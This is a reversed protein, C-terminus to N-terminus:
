VQVEHVRVLDAYEGGLHQRVAIPEPDIVLARSTLSRYSLKLPVSGPAWKWPSVGANWRRATARAPVISRGPPAAPRSSHWAHVKVSPARVPRSYSSCTAERPLASHHTASQGSM